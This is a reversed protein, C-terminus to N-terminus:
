LFTELTFIVKDLKPYGFAPGGGAGAPPRWLGMEGPLLLLCELASLAMHSGGALEGEVGVQLALLRLLCFSSWSDMLEHLRLRLRGGPLLLLCELASLAMVRAGM